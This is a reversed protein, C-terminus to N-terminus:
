RAIPQHVESKIFTAYNTRGDEFVLAAVSDRTDICILNKQFFPYGDLSEAYSSHGCIQPILNKHSYAPILDDIDNWLIGGVLDIGGRARGIAEFLPNYLTDDVSALTNILAAIMEVDGEIMDLGAYKAWEPHLGAHTLLFGNTHHAYVYKSDEAKFQKVLLREAERDRGSWGSFVAKTRPEVAPYEHNGVIAVDIFPMVWQYFEAEEEGYGLSLIDGLSIVHFEDKTDEDLGVKAFLDKVADTRGHMDGVILTKM